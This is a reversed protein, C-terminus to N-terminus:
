EVDFREVAVPQGAIACSATYVGKKWVGPAAFGQAGASYGGAWAPQPEYSLVLPSSTQGDPWFFWCEVPVKVARGLPAHTFELEVGIRRTEDAAFRSGYRREAIPPLLEEVRFLRMARVRIEGDAVEPPNRLMEFTAKTAPVDDAACEVGYEGAPWDQGDAIGWALNATASGAKGAYFRFDMPREAPATSGDPRTLTCALPITTDADPAAYEASYEVGLRRTRIADFHTAYVRRSDPLIEGDAQEFFRLRAHEVAPAASAAAPLLFACALM